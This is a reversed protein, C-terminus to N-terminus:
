CGGVMTPSSTQPSSAYDNNDNGSEEFSAGGDILGQKVENIQVAQVGILVVLAVVLVLLIVQKDM